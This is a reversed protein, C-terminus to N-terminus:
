DIVLEDFGNPYDKYKIKYNENTKINDEIDDGIIDDITIEKIELEEFDPKDYKLIDNGGLVNDIKIIDELDAIKSLFETNIIYENKEKDVTNSDDICKDLITLLISVVLKSLDQDGKCLRNEGYISIIEDLIQDLNNQFDNCYNYLRPNYQTYPAYLLSTGNDNLPNIIQDYEQKFRDINIEYGRVVVETINKTTVHYVSDRNNYLSILCSNIFITKVLITIFKDLRNLAAMNIKFTLGTDLNYHQLFMVIKLGIDYNYIKFKRIKTM